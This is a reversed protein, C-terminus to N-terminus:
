TRRGFLRSFFGVPRREELRTLRDDLRHILATLDPPGETAPLNTGGAAKGGPRAFGVIAEVVWDGVTMGRQNAGRVAMERVPAPVGRITWRGAADDSSNPKGRARPPRGRRRRPPSPTAPSAPQDEPPGTTPKQDV